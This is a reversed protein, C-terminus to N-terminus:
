RIIMEFDFSRIMQRDVAWRTQWVSWAQVINHVFLVEPAGNVFFSMIKVLEKYSQRWLKQKLM